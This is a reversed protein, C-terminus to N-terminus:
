VSIDLRHMLPLNPAVCVSLIPRCLNVLDKDQRDRAEAGAPQDLSEASKAERSKWTRNM